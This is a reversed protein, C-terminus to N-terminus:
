GVEIYLDESFYVCHHQVISTLASLSFSWFDAETILQKLIDVYIVCAVVAVNTVNTLTLPCDTVM